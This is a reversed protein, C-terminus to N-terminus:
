PERVRTIVLRSKAIERAGWHFKYAESGRLFNWSSYGEQFAYQLAEFLLLRGFGLAGYSPDFASLYAYIVNRYPFGLIVAAIEGQFRLSFVLLMERSAFEHVVDRLFKASRNAVIMGPEGQERWRASHLGVLADLCEKDNSRNVNISIPALQEAKSRYRRENRRLGSPRAAWYGAFTQDISIASCPQDPELQALLRADLGTAALPTDASLDQWNCIDWGPQSQLHERLCGVVREQESAAFLPDLYDSIGSGILTLQRRGEWDHLFAPVIGVLTGDANRFAYVQLEGGGFHHWWTLLWEPTQFPTLDPLSAELRSWERRIGHLRSLSNIVELELGSLDNM